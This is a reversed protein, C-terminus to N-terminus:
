YNVHLYYTDLDSDQHEVRVYRLLGGGCAISGRYLTGDSVALVRNSGSKSVMDIGTHPAGGYARKVRAYWTEGYGQTIQAPDSVPWEWNGSFGFPGDPSNSWIIDTSKLFASPDRNVQDKVVEFHLHTGTSCVSAGAIITAIQDGTKVSKVQSENGQGAIISQIASLEALTKALESQYRAENNNTESLLYQQDRKQQDLLAKEKELQTNKTEFEDQKEQKILKQQDYEIRQSEARQMVQVTQQGAQAIYRQHAFMGGVSQGSALISFPSIYRRKYQSVVRDILMETLRDLSFNLTEIRDSLVAIEVSLQNIEAQTQAIQLQQVNIQGTLINLTNTLTVRQTQTESIKNELCSRKEKICDLYRDTDQTEPSCVINDCASVPNPRLFLGAMLIAILLLIRKM